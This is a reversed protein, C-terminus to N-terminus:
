VGSSAYAIRSPSRRALAILDRVTHVPLSPHVALINPSDSIRAVAQFDRLVNYPLNRNLSQNFGHTGASGVVLTYGDAAARAALETGVIGGAGSRNEVVFQQGLAASLPGTLLRSGFDVFGGPAFPAIIRVPKVPYQQAHAASVSVILLLTYPVTSHM